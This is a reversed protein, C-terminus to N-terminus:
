RRRARRWPCVRSRSRRRRRPGCVLSPVHRVPIVSCGRFRDAAGDVRALGGLLAQVLGEVGQVGLALRGLGVDAALCALAPRREGGLVVVAAVGAGVHVARGELAQQRVDLGALHVAHHDVLDIAQGTGQEVEGPDDLHQVLVADAEHGHGLLEVGGRREPRSVSLM